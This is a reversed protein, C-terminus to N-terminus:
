NIDIIKKYVPSWNHAPWLKTMSVIKNIKQLSYLRGLGTQIVFDAVRCKYSNEIQRNLIMQYREISMGPRQLVRNKQISPPSNVVIVADCYIEGGTELLLPIDLVVLRERRRACAALFYYQKKRVLPHLIKELKQLKIEDVLVISRLATRDVYGDKAVEPFVKLVDDVAAGDKSMLNHVVHDADYVPVRLHRFANAATTKGMGISGTLGLIIM